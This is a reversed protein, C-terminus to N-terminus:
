AMKEYLDMHLVIIKSTLSKIQRVTPIDSNSVLKHDNNLVSVSELLDIFIM